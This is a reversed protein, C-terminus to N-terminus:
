LLLDRIAGSADKSGLVDMVIIDGNFKVPDSVRQAIYPQKGRMGFRELKDYERLM